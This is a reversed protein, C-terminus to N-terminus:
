ARMRAKLGDLEQDKKLGVLYRRKNGGVYARTWIDQKLDEDHLFTEVETMLPLVEGDMVIEGDENRGLIGERAVDKGMYDTVYCIGHINDLLEFLIEKQLSEEATIEEKRLFEVIQSEYQTLFAEGAEKLGQMKEALQKLEM